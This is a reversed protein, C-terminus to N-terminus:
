YIILQGYTTGQNGLGQELVSFLDFILRLRVKAQLLLCEIDQVSAELASYICALAEKHMFRAM